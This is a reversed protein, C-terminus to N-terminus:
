GALRVLAATLRGDPRALEEMISYHDHGDLALLKSPLQATLRAAHYDRAQRQFEPLEGLGHAIILPPSAAPLQRQPSLTEVEEPTLKLKENVYCLRCPELEYLGSISFGADAGTATLLLSALHGGASWGALIIKGQAMGNDNLWDVAARIEAAIQTLSAEPALTYGVMAVDIGHALPGEAMCGFVEKSNRQWYGGHIFVMLPADPRGARYLDIRNRPKPGYPLELLAPDSQARLKETRAEWGALREESDSFAAGNNYAAGIQDRTMGRWVTGDM